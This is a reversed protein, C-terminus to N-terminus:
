KCVYCGVLRRFHVYWDPTVRYLRVYTHQTISRLETYSYVTGRGPRGPLKNRVEEGRVRDFGVPGRGLEAVVRTSQFTKQQSPQEAGRSQVTMM